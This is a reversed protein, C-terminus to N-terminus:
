KSAMMLGINGISYGIFALALGKQETFYYVLAQGFYLLTVILLLLHKM